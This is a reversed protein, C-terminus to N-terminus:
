AAHRDRGRQCRQEGAARHAGVDRHGALYSERPLTRGTPPMLSFTSAARRAPILVIMMGRRLSRSRSSMRGFDALLQLHNEDVGDVLDDTVGQAVAVGGLGAGFCDRGGRCSRAGFPCDKVLRSEAIGPVSMTLADRGGFRKPAERAEALMIPLRPRVLSIQMSRQRQQWFQASQYYYDANGCM